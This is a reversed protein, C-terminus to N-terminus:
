GVIMKEIIRHFRLWPDEALALKSAQLLAALAAPRASADTEVIHKLAAHLKAARDCMPLKAAARQLANLEEEPIPPVAEM